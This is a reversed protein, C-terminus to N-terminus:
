NEKIRKGAGRCEPCITQTRFSGLITTSVQGSGQCTICNEYSTNNKAGSGQCASCSNEKRLSINKSIGFVAEQLTINLDVEIDAGRNGTGARTQGEQGGFFSGFLDGLDFDVNQANSYEGSPNGGQFPNGGANNFTSGFQDYQVRKDKDKLTQYAENIEKFKAENGNGKDPHHKHALSRFAKKIENPTSKKDVGLIKYYDKNM